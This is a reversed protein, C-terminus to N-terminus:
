LGHFVKADDLARDLRGRIADAAFTKGQQFTEDLMKGVKLFDDFSELRLTYKTGEVMFTAIGSEVTPDTSAMWECPYTM